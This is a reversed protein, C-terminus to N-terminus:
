KGLFKDRARVAEELTKFTKEFGPIVVRFIDGRTTIYREGTRPLRHARNNNQESMTAWRLNIVNNNSKDRDIHDVTPKNDPNPIFALAVMRSVPIKTKRKVSGAKNHLRVIAYGDTDIDPKLLKDGYLSKVNGLNSVKYRHVDKWEEM